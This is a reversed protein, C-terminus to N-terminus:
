WRSRLWGFVLWKQVETTGCKQAGIILAYPLCWRRGSSGEFSSLFAKVSRMFTGDEEDDNPVGGSHQGPLLM